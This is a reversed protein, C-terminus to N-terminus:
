EPPPPESRNDSDSDGRRRSDPEDNAPKPARRDGSRGDRRSGQDRDDQRATRDVDDTARDGRATQSRRPAEGGFQALLQGALEDRDELRVAEALERRAEEPYGLYGYHYGLLFHAYSADRREQVFKELRRLQETYDNVNGYFQRFSQVFAGWSKPDSMGMGQHIAGAAAGYDGVAFLAQGLLLLVKPNNPMEVAAHNAMRVAEDYRGARFAAEARRMFDLGAPTTTSDRSSAQSQAPPADTRVKEAEYYASGAIGDDYYYPWDNVYSGSWPGFSGYSPGYYGYWPNYYYSPGYYSYFPWVGFGFGFRDDWDRDRRWRGDRRWGDRDWDGSRNRRGEDFSLERRGSDRRGDRSESRITGSSQPSGMRVGADRNGERIQANGGRGEQGGGGRHKQAWVPACMTLTVMTAGVCKLGRRTIGYM